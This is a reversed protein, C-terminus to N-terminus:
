DERLDVFKGTEDDLMLLMGSGLDFHLGHLALVRLETLESHVASVYYLPAYTCGM